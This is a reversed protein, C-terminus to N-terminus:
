LARKDKIAVVCSHSIILGFGSQTPQQMPFCKFEYDWHDRTSLYPSLGKFEWLGKYSAM